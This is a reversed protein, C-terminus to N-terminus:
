LIVEPISIARFPSIAIQAEAEPESHRTWNSTVQPTSRNALKLTGPNVTAPCRNDGVKLHTVEARRATTALCRLVRSFAGVGPVIGLKMWGLSLKSLGLLGTGAFPAGNDTRIRAPLGHERTAAECIARVQSLDMRSVIQCRILYRSVPKPSRPM